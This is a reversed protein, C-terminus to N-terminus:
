RSKLTNRCTHQKVLSNVIDETTEVPISSLSIKLHKQKVLSNVLGEPTERTRQKFLNYHTRCTICCSNVVLHPWLILFCAPSSVHNALLAINYCKTYLTFFLDLRDNFM